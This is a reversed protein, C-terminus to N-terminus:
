YHIFTASNGVASGSLDVQGTNSIDANITAVTDAQNLQTSDIPFNKANSDVQIQNSVATAAIGVGGSINSLDANVVASPDKAGCTQESKVATVDPDTSVMAGNCLATAGVRVDGWVDTAELNIEAGVDGRQDQSNEVWTNSMTFINVTNGVSQTFAHVDGNTASVTANITSWVNGFNIQGNIVEANGYEVYEEASVQLAALSLLATGAILSKAIRRM